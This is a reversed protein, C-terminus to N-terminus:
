DRIFSPSVQYIDHGNISVTGTEPKLSGTLINLLTSKGGVLNDQQFLQKMIKLKWILTKLFIHSMILM